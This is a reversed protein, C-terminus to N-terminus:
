GHLFLAKYPFPNLPPQSQWHDKQDHGLNKATTRSNLKSVYQTWGLRASVKELPVVPRQGPFVSYTTIKKPLDLILSELPKSDPLKPNTSTQPVSQKAADIVLSTFLKASDDCDGFKNHKM